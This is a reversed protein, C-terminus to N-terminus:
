CYFPWNWFMALDCARFNRDMRSLEEVEKEDLKFGFVHTNERIREPTTSKPIVTYGKDICWRILVQAPTVKYKAAIEKVRQDNLPGDKRGNALPSYATIQIGKSQCYWINGEQNLYPHVEIQNVVPVIKATSLLERIIVNNFNSIGISKTLGSHVFGELDSWVKHISTNGILSRGMEDQPFLQHEGKENTTAVFPVPSHVLYLDLYTIKLEQLCKEIAAKPNEWQSNWLKTVIYLDERKVVGESLIKHLAHGVEEQNQYVAACDIHRVGQRIAEEVAKGVLGKPAQWTGFGLVPMKAGNNLTISELFPNSYSM